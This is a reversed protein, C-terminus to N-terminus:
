WTGNSEEQNQEILISVNVIFSDVWQDRLVGLVLHKRDTYATDKSRNKRKYDQLVGLMKPLDDAYSQILTQKTSLVKRLQQVIWNYDRIREEDTLSDTFGLEKFQRHIETWLKIFDPVAFAEDFIAQVEASAM